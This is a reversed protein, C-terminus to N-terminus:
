GLFTATTFFHQSSFCLLYFCNFKSGCNFYNSNSKFTKFVQAKLKPSNSESKLKYMTCSSVSADTNVSTITSVVKYSNIQRSNAVGQEIYNYLLWYMVLLKKYLVFTIFSIDMSFFTKAKVLCCLM